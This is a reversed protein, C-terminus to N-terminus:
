RPSHPAGSVTVANRAAEADARKQQAAIEADLREVNAKEESYSKVGLKEAFWLKAADAAKGSTVGRMGTITAAGISNASFKSFWKGVPSKKPM